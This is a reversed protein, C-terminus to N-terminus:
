VVNSLQTVAFVVMLPANYIRTTKGGNLKTVKKKEMVTPEYMNAIIIWRVPIRRCRLLVKSLSQSVALVCHVSFRLYNGVM